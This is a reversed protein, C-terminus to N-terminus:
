IYRDTNGVIEISSGEQPNYRPLVEIAENGRMKRHNFGAVAGIIMFTGFLMLVVSIVGRTASEAGSQPLINMNSFIQTNNLDVTFMLEKELRYYDQNPDTYYLYGTHEGAVLPDNVSASWDGNDDATATLEYPDSFIRIYVVQGKPAKGYLRIGSAGDENFIVNETNIDLELSLEPDITYDVWKKLFDVKQENEGDEILIAPSPSMSVGILENVIVSPTPTYVSPSSLTTPININVEAVSKNMEINGLMDMSITFFGYTGSALANFTFTHDLLRPGIIGEQVIPSYEQALIFDGSNYNYFLKIKKIGSGTDVANTGISIKMNSVATNLAHSTPPTIDIELPLSSIVNSGLTDTGKVSLLSLKISQADLYPFGCSYTSSNIKSIQEGTMTTDGNIFSCSSLGGVVTNIQANVDIVRPIYRKSSAGDFYSPTIIYPNISMLSTVKVAPPISVGTQNLTDIARMVIKDAGPDIFSTTQVQCYKVGYYEVKSATMWSLGGDLSYQCYNITVSTGVESSISAGNTGIRYYVTGLSPIEASVPDLFILVFLIIILYLVKRM